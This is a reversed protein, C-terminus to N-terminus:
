GRRRSFMLSAAWALVLLVATGGVVAVRNERVYEVMERPWQLWRKVEPPVDPSPRGGARAPGADRSPSDSLSQSRSQVTPTAGSGFLGSPPTASMEAHPQRASSLASGPAPPAARAPVDGTTGRASRENFQIGATPQQMEVLLDITRSDATAAASRAGMTALPAANIQNRELVAPTETSPAAWGALSALAGCLPALHRVKFLYM